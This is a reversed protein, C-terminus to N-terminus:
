FLNIPQQSLSEDAEWFHPRLNGANRSFEAGTGECLCPHSKGAVGHDRGAQLLNSGLGQGESLM